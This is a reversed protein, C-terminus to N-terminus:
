IYIYVLEYIIREYYAYYSTHISSTRYDLILVVVRSYYAYYLLVVIVLVTHMRSLVHCFSSLEELLYHKDHGKKGKQEECFFYGSALRAVSQRSVRVGSQRSISSQRDPQHDTQLNVGNNRM